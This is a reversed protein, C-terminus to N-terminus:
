TYMERDYAYFWYKPQDGFSITGSGDGREELTLGSLSALDISRLSRAFMGSVIIVRQDTVGYLLRSRYLRDVLHRGVLVYLGVATFLLGALIMIPESIKLGEWFIFFVFGLWAVSFPIFFWDLRTFVIGQAPRGAWLLKEDRDLFPRLEDTVAVPCSQGM